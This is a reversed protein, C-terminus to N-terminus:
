AKVAKVGALGWVPLNTGPERSISTLTVVNSGKNQSFQDFATHGLGAVLSVTDPMIGEFVAVRVTIEQKNAVLKIKEGEAVKLKKATAGNMQAVSYKGVLQDNTIIKTAFPPIGTTATGMGLVVVPALQLDGEPCLAQAAKAIADSNCKPKAASAVSAVFVSGEEIMTRFPAGLAVAHKYLFDPMDKVGLKIGLEKALGLFFEGMPRANGYPKAVPRAIAYTVKGSGYPTQVDDFAEMGLAAPLVLDCEACTESMFSAVAISYGAKQVLEKAGSDTPLAYVPNAAYVLLLAPAPKRDSAVAQMYDVVSKKMVSKYQAAGKVVTAPFPLEVLGGETNVNDLLMNVAVAAMVPGAAGGNGLASGAIVLPKKAAVLMAVAAKLREAPM